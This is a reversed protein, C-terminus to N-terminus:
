SPAGNDLLKAKGRMQARAAFLGFGDLLFGSELRLAPHDFARMAPHIAKAPYKNTPLLKWLREHRHQM